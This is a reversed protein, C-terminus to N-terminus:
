KVTCTARSITQIFVVEGNAARYEYEVEADFDRILIGATSQCVAQNGAVLRLETLKFKSKSPVNLFVTVYKAKRGSTSASLLQMNPAVQRPLSAAVDKVSMQLLNEVGGAANVAIQVKEEETQSHGIVPALSSLLALAGTRWM